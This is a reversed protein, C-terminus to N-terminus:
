DELSIRNISVYAGDTFLRIEDEKLLNDIESELKQYLSFPIRSVGLQDEKLGHIYFVLQDNERSNFYIQINKNESKELLRFKIIEIIRTTWNKM